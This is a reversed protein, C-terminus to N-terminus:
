MSPASSALSCPANILPPPPASVRSFTMAAAESFNMQMMSSPLSTLDSPAKGKGTSTMGM